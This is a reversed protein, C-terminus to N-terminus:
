LRVGLVGWVEEALLTRSKMKEYSHECDVIMHRFSGCALCLLREGTTGITNVPRPRKREDEKEKGGFIARGASWRRAGGGWSGGHGHDRGDRGAAGKNPLSTQKPKFPSPHGRGSSGGRFYGRTALLAEEETFFEDKVNIEKRGESDM